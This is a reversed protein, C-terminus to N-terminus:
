GNLVDPSNVVLECIQRIGKIYGDVITAEDEFAWVPLKIANKYFKDANPFSGQDQLEHKEYLRPMAENLCSFLPLDNLLCTSNPRDVEHLGIKHLANCFADLSVGNSCSEDFQMVFAYWSPQKGKFNPMKLFSYHGFAELFMDAYKQKQLIWDDLHSFQENAIAIALPHARFKLGFGTLAFRHLPHSSPIEQRCRKNYHGQLTARYYIEENDTLMIGGEGGTVIKQGQLSWASADGFSGVKVGNCSAGHAHSCDELLFIGSSKCFEAIEKMDCPIGWMHTVIVAKTRPTVKKKIEDLTVNGSEDCDCFIPVAGTYVIPSITAFFTYVPCIVEDGKTLAIGELMSFIANTGSNSLLAFKRGHYQSFRDEFEQFIGGRNYISVGQHLQKVVVDEIEKTIRPWVYHEKDKLGLDKSIEELINSM